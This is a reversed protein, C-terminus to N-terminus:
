IIKKEKHCYNKLEMARKLVLCPYLTSIGLWIYRLYIFISQFNLNLEKTLCQDNILYFAEVLNNLKNEFWNLSQINNLQKFEIYFINPCTRM